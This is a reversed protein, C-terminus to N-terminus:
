ESVYKQTDEFQSRLVQREANQGALNRDLQDKLSQELRQDFVKSEKRRQELETEM